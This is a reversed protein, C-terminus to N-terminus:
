DRVMEPWSHHSLLHWLEDLAGPENVKAACAARKLAIARNGPSLRRAADLCTLSERATRALQEAELVFADAKLASTAPEDPLSRVVEAVQTTWQPHSWQRALVLASALVRRYDAPNAPPRNLQEELLAGAQAYQQLHTFINALVLIFELRKQAVPIVSIEAALAQALTNAEAERGIHSLAEAMYVSSEAHLLADDAALEDARQYLALASHWHGLRRCLSAHPILVRCEWAADETSRAAELARQFYATAEHVLHEHAMAEGLAICVEIVEGPSGTLTLGDLARKLVEIAAPYDGRAINLRGASVRIKALIDDRGMREALRRAERLGVAAEELRGSRWLAEAARLLVDVTRLDDDNELFYGLPKGLRRSMIQLAKHSPRIRGLEVQSVYSKTLEAGALQEQTLGLKKRLDRIKIGVM